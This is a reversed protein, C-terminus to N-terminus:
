GARGIIKGQLISGNSFDGIAEVLLGEMDGDAVEQGLAEAVMAEAEMDEISLSAILNHNVL